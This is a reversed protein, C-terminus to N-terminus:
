LRMMRLINEIARYQESARSDFIGTISDIYRAIADENNVDGEFGPLNYKESIDSFNDTDIANDLDGFFEKRDKEYLDKFKGAVLALTSMAVPIEVHKMRAMTNNAESTVAMRQNAIQSNQMLTSALGQAANQYRDFLNPLQRSNNNHNEM